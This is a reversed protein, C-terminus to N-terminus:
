GFFVPFTVPHYCVVLSYNWVLIARFGKINMTFAWQPYWYVWLAIKVKLEINVPHIYYEYSLNKIHWFTCKWSHIGKEQVCGRKGQNLILMGDSTVEILGKYNETSTLLHLIVLCTHTLKTCLSGSEHNVFSYLIVLDFNM